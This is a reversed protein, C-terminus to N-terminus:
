QDVRLYKDTYRGGNKRFAALVEEIPGVVKMKKGASELVLNEGDSRYVEGTRTGLARAGAMLLYRTSPETSFHM